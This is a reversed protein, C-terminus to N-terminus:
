AAPDRLVFARQADNEPAPRDARERDAQRLATLRAFVNGPDALGHRLMWRCAATGTRGMGGFCHLYVPRGAALSLDIADLVSAMNDNTTTGADRVPFRLHALPEGAGAALVRLPDAYPRFRQGAYPRFRQGANNTEGEEMLDIFTRLGLGFLTRLKAAHAEPDPAGPYAGALLAGEVVWYSRPAPAPVPPDLALRWPPSPFSPAPAPVPDPM